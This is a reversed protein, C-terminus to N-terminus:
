ETKNKLPPFSLSEGTKLRRFHKLKNHRAVQLYYQPDDYVKHTLLPLSQNEEVERIHTLDSSKFKLRAEIMEQSNQVRFTTKIRARLPKGDPKFLTYQIDASILIVNAVLPGWVLKLERPKHADSDPLYCLELFEKIKDNVEIPKFIKDAGPVPAAIGLGNSSASAGTGDLLFEFNLEQPGIRSYTSQQEGQGQAEPTNYEVKYSENFSTPNYMVEFKKSPNDVDSISFKVLEGSTVGPIEPLM